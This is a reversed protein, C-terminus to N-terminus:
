LRISAIGRAALGLAIDLFPHNPGDVRGPQEARLRLGARGGPVPGGRGPADAHGEAAPIGGRGRDATGGGRRRRDAFAGPQVGIGGNDARRRRHFGGDARAGPPPRDYPRPPSAAPGPSAPRLMLGAVKGDPDFRISGVGEGAEFHLPVDVMTDDGARHAFPEGIGEFRGVMGVTHAWRAALRTADIRERMREDFEGVVEEWRGEALCTILGVARDAADTPVDHSMPTGTRPDVPHGFRQFAAQRTTGLAEGIERWSHGADRARDVAGQLAENAAVARERAALM